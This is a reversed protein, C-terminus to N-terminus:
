TDGSQHRSSSYEETRFLWTDDVINTITIEPTPPKEETPSVVPPRQTHLPAANQSQSQSRNLSNTSTIDTIKPSDISSITYVDQSPPPSKTRRTSKTNKRSAKSKRNIKGGLSKFSDIEVLPEWKVSTDSLENVQIYISVPTIDLLIQETLQKM